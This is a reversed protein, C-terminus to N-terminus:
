YVRELIAFYHLRVVRAIEKAVDKYKLNSAELSAQEEDIIDNAVWRLLDPMHKKETADVERIGQNIRNETCAYEVFDLASKAKEADVPALNKTKTVSHKAGKVKFIFKQGKYYGTWVVGEGVGKIGFRHGVPCEAEVQQTIEVLENQAIAPNKFDIQIFGAGFSTISHFNETPPIDEKHLVREISIWETSNDVLEICADFMFFSKELENVAVGQQIGKGAWEGYVYLRENEECLQDFSHKMFKTLDERNEEVWQRFGFHGFERSDTLFCSRKGCRLEKGDYMLSANTGHVKTTGMFQITPFGENNAGALFRVDRVIDNLQRIKEYKRYGM